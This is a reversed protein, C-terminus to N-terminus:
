PNSQHLAPEAPRASPKSMLVVAENSWNRIKSLDVEVRFTCDGRSDKEPIFWWNKVAEVVADTIAKPVQDDTKASLVQGIGNIKIEVPIKGANEAIGRPPFTLHPAPLPTTAARGRRMVENIVSALFGNSVELPQRLEKGDSFVYFFYRTEGLDHDARLDFSVSGRSFAKMDGVERVLCGRDGSESNIYVVAFVNRLPTTTELLFSLHLEHNFSSNPVDTFTVSSTMARDKTAFIWGPAVQGDKLSVPVLRMSSLTPVVKKGNELVVVPHDGKAQHILSAHGKYDAWFQIEAKAPTGVLAPMIALCVPIIKQCVNM